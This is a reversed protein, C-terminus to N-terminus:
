GRSAKPRLMEFGRGWGVRARGATSEPDAGSGSCSLVSLLLLKQLCYSSASRWQLSRNGPM